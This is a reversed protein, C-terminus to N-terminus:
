NIGAKEASPFSDAEVKKRLAADKQGPLMERVSALPKHSNSPTNCGGAPIMAACLPVLIWRWPGTGIM